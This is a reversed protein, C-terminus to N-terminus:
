KQETLLLPERHIDAILQRCEEQASELRKCTESKNIRLRRIEAVQYDLEGIRARYNQDLYSSLANTYNNRVVNAADNFGARLKERSERLEIKKKENDIDEKAQMGWSFVVGFIGLAKGAVNLKEGM